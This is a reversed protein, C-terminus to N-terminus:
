ANCFFPTNSMFAGMPAERLVSTLGQPDIAHAGPRIQDQGEQWGEGDAIPDAEANVPREIRKGVDARKRRTRAPDSPLADIVPREIQLQEFSEFLARKVEVARHPVRVQCPTAVGDLLGNLFASLAMAPAQVRHSAQVGAAPPDSLWPNFPCAM